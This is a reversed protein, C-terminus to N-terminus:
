VKRFRVLSKGPSYIYNEHFLIQGKDDRLIWDYELSHPTGKYAFDLQKIKITAIRPVRGAGTYEVYDFDRQEGRRWHGIPFMAEGEFLREAGLRADYVRGLATGNGNLAFLQRKDGDRKHNIREYVSLSEGSHPHRWQKPGKILRNNREGSVVNVSVLRTQKVQTFPAGAWLEIPIFRENVARSYPGTATTACASLAVSAILGAIGLLRKM